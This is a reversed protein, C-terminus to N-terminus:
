SITVHTHTSCPRAVRAVAQEAISDVCSRPHLAVALRSTDLYRVTLSRLPLYYRISLYSMIIACSLLNLAVALRPLLCYRVTIYPMTIVFCVLNLAIALRPTDLYGVAASLLPYYSLVQRSSADLTGLARGLNQLLLQPIGAL